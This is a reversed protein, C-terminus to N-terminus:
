DRLGPDGLRDNEDLVDEARKRFTYPYKMLMLRRWTGHDTEAVAPAYNTNIFMTHSAEFSVPDQRMRRAKLVPTGITSKLQNVDLRRSEPTEEMLAYRAGMLDMTETPHQDPNGLLVRHSVLVFYGGAAKQLPVSLTSKGNEGGGQQVILLDDTPTHGTFAQGVRVQYWDRVDEPV